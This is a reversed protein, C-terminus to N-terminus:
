LGLLVGLPVAMLRDGLIRVEDGAYAVIGAVFRDQAEERLVKLGSTASANVSQSAKVEVAILKGAQEIVLDVEKNDSTRWFMTAGEPRLLAAAPAIQQIVFSELLHPYLRDDLLDEPRRIGSLHCALGADAYNMKPTRILRKRRKVTYPPLRGGLMSLELVDLYRTVTAVGLGVDRALSALNILGGTEKGPVGHCCQSISPECKNIM